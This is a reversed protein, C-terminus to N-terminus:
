LEENAAGSRSKDSRLAHDLVTGGGNLMGEAYMMKPGWGGGEAVVKLESFDSRIGRGAARDAMARVTLPMGDKLYVVIDGAGCRIWSDFKGVGTL